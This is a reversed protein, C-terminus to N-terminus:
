EFVPPIKLFGKEKEPFARLAAENPLRPSDGDDRFVNTLAAGGAMSEVEETDVTKLEEFHALLKELDGLLKKEKKPDLEIRALAALHELTKKDIIM